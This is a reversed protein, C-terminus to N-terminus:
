YRGEIHANLGARTDHRTPPQVVLELSFGGSELSVVGSSHCYLMEGVGRLDEASM